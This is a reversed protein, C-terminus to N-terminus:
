RYRKYIPEMRTQSVAIHHRMADAAANADGAAMATWIAAHEKVAAETVATQHGLRILHMHAYIRGLAEIINENGCAEAIIEHFRADLIAFRGYSPDGPEALCAEMATIMATLEARQAENMRETALAAAAPELMMRFEYMGRFREGSPIPAASYGANHKRLVLGETELRILAARIPTQSVGFDRVLADVSIREGPAIRLTILQTLLAEYVDDGVANRRPLAFEESPSGSLSLQSFRSM